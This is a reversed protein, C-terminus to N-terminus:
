ELKPDGFIVWDHLRADGGDTVVLTFFRDSNHVPVDIPIAGDECTFERRTFRSAGDVVVYADAKHILSVVGPTTPRYTNGLVATFHWLSLGPHLRRLATLDITLGCNSHMLVFGHPLRSYDIGGLVNTFKEGTTPWDVTGAATIYYYAFRGTNPFSLQHGYSDVRTMGGPVFCGDFVSLSPIRHYQGTSELIRGPGKFEGTAGNRPDIQGSRRHTTGDGGAVLDVLDLPSTVPALTRVFAQPSAGGVTRTVVSSDIQGADGASLIEGAIADGSAARPIAQVKGKFVEVDTAAGPTVSVGFETGLDVVAATPTLVKFGHAAGSAVASLKGSHLTMAARSDISFTAPAEVVVKAGDDLTLEVFGHTLEVQQATPLATGIVTSLQGEAFRAEFANTLRAHSAPPRLMWVAAISVSLIIAAATAFRFLVSRLSRAPSPVSPQAASSAHTGSAPESGLAPSALTGGAGGASKPPALHMAPLIMADNLDAPTESESTATQSLSGVRQQLAGHLHILGFYLSRISRHARMLQELRRQGQEHLLEECLQSILDSAEALEERTAPQHTM